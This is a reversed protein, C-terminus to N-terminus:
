WFSVNNPGGVKKPQRRWQTVVNNTWASLFFIYYAVNLDILKKYTCACFIQVFDAIIIKHIKFNKGLRNNLM